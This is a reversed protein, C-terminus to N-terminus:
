QLEKKLTEIVEETYGYLLQNQLWTIRGYVTKSYFKKPRRVRDKVQALGTKNEALLTLKTSTLGGLPHGRGAGMDVMRMYEKFTLSGAAGGGQQIAQYSLSKRGEDSVGIKMKSIMADMTDMVSDFYTRLSKIIFSSKLDASM